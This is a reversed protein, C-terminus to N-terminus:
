LVFHINGGRSYHEAYQSLLLQPPLSRSCTCPMNRLISYVHVAEDACPLYSMCSKVRCECTGGWTRTKLTGLDWPDLCRANKENRVDSYCLRSPIDESLQRRRANPRLGGPSSTRRNGSPKRNFKIQYDSYELAISSVRSHYRMTLSFGGTCPADALGHSGHGM